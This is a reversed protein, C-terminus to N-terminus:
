VKPAFTTGYALTDLKSEIRASGNEIRVLREKLEMKLEEHREAAAKQRESSQKEREEFLQDHESVKGELRIAWVVGGLGALGLTIATVPDFM